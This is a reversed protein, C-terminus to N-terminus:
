RGEQPQTDFRTQRRDPGTLEVPVTMGKLRSVTRADVVDEWMAPPFNTGILTSLQRQYREDILDAIQDHKWDTVQQAGLDDLALVDVSIAHRWTQEHAPDSFQQLERLLSRAARFLVAVDVDQILQRCTAVLLHSKGRGVDGYLAPAAPPNPVRAGRKLDRWHANRWDAYDRVWAKVAFVVSQNHEDTEFKSALFEAPFGAQEVRRRRRAQPDAKARHVSEVVGCQDCQGIWFEGDPDDVLLQGGCDCLGLTAPASSV